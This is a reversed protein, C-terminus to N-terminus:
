PVVWIAYLITNETVTILGRDSYSTGGGEPLTDWHDFEMLYPAIFKMANLATAVNHRVFQTSMVGSGGNRDFAVTHGWTAYLTTDETINYVDGEKYMTGSGDARTNWGVFVFGEMNLDGPSKISVSAGYVTVSGTPVSGSAGNANYTLTCVWKAYLITKGKVTFTDDAQYTTGTGDARTNWGGFTCGDKVLSGTNGLVTAPSIDAKYSNGDEPVTGSDAGNANYMVDCNWIAYLTINDTVPVPDDAEFPTGSGDAKTNWKFFSCGNRNLGAPKGEVIASGTKDLPYDNSDVPVDGRGGNAYYTVHYKWVAYLAMNTTPTLSEKPYYTGSYDARTNWGTVNTNANLTIQANDIAETTNYTFEQREDPSDSKDNCIFYVTVIWKAYLDKDATISTNFDYPEGTLGANDYWAKFSYDEYNMEPKVAKGGDTVFQEIDDDIGQMHFTVIHGWMPYLTIDGTVTMKSGESYTDGSYNSRTNWGGFSLSGSVMTGKGVIDLIDGSYCEVPNPATGGTKGNDSYTVTCKWVAYLTVDNDATLSSGVAYQTGRGNPSTNWGSFTCGDKSLGVPKAAVTVITGPVVVSSAPVDGTGGNADYSVTSKWVAYLFVDGGGAPLQVTGGASYSTGQGDAQTNWGVFTYGLKTLRGQDSVTLNTGPMGAVSSPPTGTGGNSYYVLKYGWQATVTDVSSLDVIEEPYHIDGGWGWGVFTKGLLPPSFRCGSLIYGNFGKVTYTEPTPTGGDSFTVDHDTWIAKLTMINNSLSLPYYVATEDFYDVRGDNNGDWGAFEYGDKTYVNTSLVKPTGYVADTIDSMADGSGGNRDFRITYQHGLWNATYARNGTSGKEITVIMTRETLGTGTWGLFDYGERTPNVLTFSETLVNYSTPNVASGGNLEYNITYETPSAADKAYLNYEEVKRHFYETWYREDMHYSPFDWKSEPTLLPDIYWGEINYGSFAPPMLVNGRYAEVTQLLDSGRMYNVKLTPVPDEEAMTFVLRSTLIAQIIQLRSQRVYDDGMIAQPNVTLESKYTVILRFGLLNGTGLHTSVPILLRNPEGGVELLESDAGFLVYERNDNDIRLTVRQVISWVEPYKVEMWVRMNGTGEAGDPCRIELYGSVIGSQYDLVWPGNGTYGEGDSPAPLGVSLLASSATNGSRVVITTPEATYENEYNYTQAVFGFAIAYASATIVLVAIVSIAAILYKNM